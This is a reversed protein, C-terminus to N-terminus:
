VGDAEVFKESGGFMGVQNAREAVFTAARNVL